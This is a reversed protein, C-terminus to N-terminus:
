LLSRGPTVPCLFSCFGCYHLTSIKSVEYLKVIVELPCPVYDTFDMALGGFEKVLDALQQSFNLVGDKAKIIQTVGKKLLVAQM